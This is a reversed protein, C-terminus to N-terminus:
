ADKKISANVQDRKQRDTTQYRLQNISRHMKEKNGKFIGEFFGEDYSACDTTAQNLLTFVADWNGQIYRVSAINLRACARQMSNTKPEGEANVGRDEIIATWMEIAKAVSEADKRVAIQYADVLRADDQGDKYFAVPVNATRMGESYNHEIIGAAAHLSSRQLEAGRGAVLSRGQISWQAALWAPDTVWDGGSWLTVAGGLLQQPKKGYVFATSRPITQSELVSGDRKAMEFSSSTSVEVDIWYVPIRKAEVPAGNQYITNGNADKYYVVYVDSGPDARTIEPLGVSMKVQVDGDSSVLKKGEIKLDSSSGVNSPNIAVSYTSVDPMPKLPKQLYEVRETQIRVEACGTLLIIGLAIACTFHRSHM